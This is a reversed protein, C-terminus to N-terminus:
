VLDEFEEPLKQAEEDSALRISYYSQAYHKIGNAFDDDERRYVRMSLEYRSDGEAAPAKVGLVDQGNVSKTLQDLYDRHEDSASLVTLTNDAALEIEGLVTQQGNEVAIHTATLLTATM